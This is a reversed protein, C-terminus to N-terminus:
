LSDNINVGKTLVQYELTFEGKSRYEFVDDYNVILDIPIRMKRTFSRRAARTLEFWKRSKDTTVVYIDLDSKDQRYTGDAYSGFLYIATVPIAESISKAIYKVYDRIEDPLTM